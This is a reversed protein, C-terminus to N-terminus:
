PMVVPFFVASTAITVNITECTKSIISVSICSSPWQMVPGPYITSSVHFVPSVLHATWGTLQAPLMIPGAMMPQIMMLFIFCGTALPMPSPIASM